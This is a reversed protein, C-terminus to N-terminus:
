SFIRAYSRVLPVLPVVTVRGIVMRKEPQGPQIISRCLAPCSDRETVSSDRQAEGHNYANDRETGSSDRHHNRAFLGHGNATDRNDRKDRHKKAIDV